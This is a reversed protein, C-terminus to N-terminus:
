SSWMSSLTGPLIIALALLLTAAAMLAFVQVVRTVRDLRSWDLALGGALLAMLLLYAVLIWRLAGSGGESIVLNALAGLMALLGALFLAFSRWSSQNASENM